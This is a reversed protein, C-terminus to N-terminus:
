APRGAPRDSQGVLAADPRRQRRGDDLDHLQREFLPVGAKTYYYNLLLSSDISITM